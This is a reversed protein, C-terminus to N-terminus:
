VRLATARNVEHKQPLEIGYSNPDVEQYVEIQAGISQLKTDFKEYGRAIHYTDTIITPGDIGLAALVAVAGARTDPTKVVTKARYPARPTIHVVKGDRRIDAGQRNLEDVYNFRNEWVNDTVTSPGDAVTLMLAFFPQSDPKIGIGSNTTIVDTARVESPPIVYAREGQFHVEVGMRDLVDLEPTLAPKIVEGTMNTLTLPSELYTAAAIFSIVESMDPTLVQEVHSSKIGGEIEWEDEKLKIKCGCNKLFTLLDAVTEKNRPNKIISIGEASAAAMVATKTAGSVLPGSGTEKNQAYDNIDITQGELKRCMGRLGHETETFSAGFRELISLIHSMPRVGDMSSDGIQDGGSGGFTVEGFRALMAPVPNVSGHILRSLNAPVEASKVNDADIKLTHGNFSIKAGLDVLMKLFVRTEFMDPVNSLVAKSSTMICAPLLLTMAHKYGAIPVEGNLPKGGYVRWTTSKEGQVKFGFGVGM